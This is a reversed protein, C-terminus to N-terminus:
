FIDNIDGEKVYETCQIELMQHQEEIDAVYKVELKKGKYELITDTKIDERYRTYIVYSIEPIIKLAEYYEGGRISKVTAWIKPGKVERYVTQGIDDEIEERTIIFIKKNMKGINIQKM